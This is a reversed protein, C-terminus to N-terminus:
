PTTENNQLQQKLNEKEADSLHHKITKDCLSSFTTNKKSYRKCTKCVIWHLQLQIKELLFAEKYQAKTCITVAEKCSIM